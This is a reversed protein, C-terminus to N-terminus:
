HSFFTLSFPPVLLFSAVSIGTALHTGKFLFDLRQIMKGPRSAPAQHVCEGVGRWIEHLTCLLLVPWVQSRRLGPHKDDSNDVAGSQPIELMSLAHNPRHSKYVNVKYLYIEEAGAKFWSCGNMMREASKNLVLGAPCKTTFSRLPKWSLSRADRPPAPPLLLPPPPPM